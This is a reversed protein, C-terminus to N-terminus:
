NIKYKKKNFLRSYFISLLNKIGFFVDSFKQKSSGYVRSPLSIPIETIKYNNNHIIFLSEFFFSYRHFQILELFKKDITTLNYLRFAGTTDYSLGLLFKSAFHGLNTLIKRYLNWTKISDNLKFRTGIILDANNSKDFFSDFYEPSHSLDCDMTLVYDYAKDYAYNIGEVHASGIGKKQGKRHIVSINNNVKSLKDLIKGTGDPSNDDLFLIDIYSHNKKILDVIVQVNDKENYTPIFILINKNQM